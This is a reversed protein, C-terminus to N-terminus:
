IKQPANASRDPNEGFAGHIRRMLEQFLKERPCAASLVLATQGGDPVLVRSGSRGDRVFAFALKGAALPRGADNFRQLLDHASTESYIRDIGHWGSFAQRLRETLMAAPTQMAPQTDPSPSAQRSQRVDEPSRSEDKQRMSEFLIYQLDNEIRRRTVLCHLQISLSVEDWSFIERAAAEQRLENVRADLLQGQHFFLVGRRGTAESLRVTCTRQEMEILQLFMSATVRHLTGGDAQQSLIAVIRDALFSIKFPKEIFEAAGNERALREMDPTSFGSMIIVPIDAYRTKVHKLLTLGDMRPMKMDTVVLDIPNGTLKQVAVKGDGAILIEFHRGYKAMGEQLSFLAEQNDDVILVRRTAMDQQPQLM